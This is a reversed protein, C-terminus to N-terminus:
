GVWNESLYSGDKLVARSTIYSKPSDGSRPEGLKPLELLDFSSPQSTVFVKIIDECQYIGKDRMEQPVRMKIRKKFVGTFGISIHQPPSCEYTGELLNRIQWFPGMDYIYIYLEKNEKNEVVLEFKIEDHEAEVLYGPNIIEGLRSIIHVSFSERFSDLPINSALDRVLMFKTLHELVDCMCSINMQDQTITPLNNMRRSFEDLSEYEKQGNLTVHFSAPRMDGNHVHLSRNKLATLLEQQYLM